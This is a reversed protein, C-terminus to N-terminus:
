EVWVWQSTAYEYESIHVKKIAFWAWWYRTCIDSKHRGPKKQFPREIVLCIMM